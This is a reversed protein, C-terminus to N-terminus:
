ARELTACFVGSTRTLWTPGLSARFRCIRALRRIATANFFNIEDPHTPTMWAPPLIRRALIGHNPVQLFILGDDALVRHLEALLKLPAQTRELHRVMVVATFRGGECASLADLPDASGSFATSAHLAELDWAAYDPPLSAIYVSAPDGIGLVPGPRGHALLAASIRRLM